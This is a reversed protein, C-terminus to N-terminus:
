EKGEEKLEEIIELNHKVISRIPYEKIKRDYRKYVLENYNKLREIIKNLRAIEKDQEIITEEYPKSIYDFIITYNKNNVFDNIIKKNDITITTNIEENPCNDCPNIISWYPKNHWQCKKCKNM